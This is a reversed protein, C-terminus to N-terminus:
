QDSRAFGTGSSVTAAEALGLSLWFFIALDPYFYGQDVMGHALGAATAACIGLLVFADDGGARWGAICRQLLRLLLWVFAILGLVGLQLLLDLILNHPHATNIEGAALAEPGIYGQGFEPNYYYFFQGLGIGFLPHDRLMQLSSQWIELRLGSSGGFPNLREPGALAALILAGLLAGGGLALARRKGSLWTMVLLAVLVGLLAGKSFSLVLGLLALVAGVAWLLAANRQDSESRLRYAGWALAAALPWIRGLYLGLNNPHCYISAVRRVGGVLAVSDSHCIAVGTTPALDIGVLQLVGVAAVAAGSATLAAVLGRRTQQRRGWYRVLAYVIMPEIIVRRLQRIAEDRGQPLAILVGGIAAALFLLLPLAERRNGFVHGWGRTREKGASLWCLLTVGALIVIVIEHLPFYKFTIGFGADWIGKARWALPITLPIYLLALDPRLLALLGFILAALLTPIINVDLRYVAFLALGQGVFLAISGAPKERWGWYQELARIM